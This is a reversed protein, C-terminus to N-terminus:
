EAKEGFYTGDPSIDALPEGNKGNIIVTEVKKDTLHKILNQLNEKKEEESLMTWSEKATVFLTNKHYFAAQLHEGKPLNEVEIVQFDNSKPFNETLQQTFFYAGGCLICVLVTAAMLWRNIPPKPTLPLPKEVIPQLTIVQGEGSIHPRNRNSLRVIQRELKLRAELLKNSVILFRNQANQDSIEILETLDESCVQIKGALEKIEKKTEPSLEQRQALENECLEEAWIILGLVERCLNDAKGEEFSVFDNLDLTQLTKSRMMFCRLIDIEPHTQSLTELLPAIREKATLHIVQLKEEASEQASQNELAILELIESVYSCNETEPSNETGRFEHIIESIDTQSNPSVDQLAGAFDYKATLRASLNENAQTLLDNFVNGVALNCEVAAAAIAPEFFSKGLERKFERLREFLDSLILEEFSKLTEAEKIFDDLRIIAALTEDSFQDSFTEKGDWGNFLERLRNSMEKRSLRAERQIYGRGKAFIRTVVLDFKSLNSINRYFQALAIFFEAEFPKETLDFFRRLHFTEIKQDREELFGRWLQFKQKIQFELQLFDEASADSNLNKIKQLIKKIEEINFAIPSPKLLRSEVESLIKETVRLNVAEDGIRKLFEKPQFRNEPLITNKKLSTM